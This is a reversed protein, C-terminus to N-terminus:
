ERYMYFSGIVIDKQEQTLFESDIVQKICLNLQNSAGEIEAMEMATDIHSELTVYQKIDSSQSNFDELIDQGTPTM